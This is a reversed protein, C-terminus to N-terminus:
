GASVGGTTNKKIGRFRAVWSIVRNGVSCKNKLEQLARAHPRNVNLKLKILVTKDHLNDKIRTDINRDYHKCGTEM